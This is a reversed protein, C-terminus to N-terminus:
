SNAGILRQRLNPQSTKPSLWIALFSQGFTSDSVGGLVAKEYFVEQCLKAM